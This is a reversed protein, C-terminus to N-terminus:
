KIKRAGRVTLSGPHGNWAKEEFYKQKLNRNVLKLVLSSSQFM